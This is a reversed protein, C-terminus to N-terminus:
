NPSLTLNFNITVDDGTTMTGLLATPPEIGFDTMKMPYAGSVQYQGDALPTIM